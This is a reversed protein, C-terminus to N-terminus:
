CYPVSTHKHAIRRALRIAQFYPRTIERWIKSLGRPKKQQRLLQRDQAIDSASPTESLVFEQACIAPILQFITILTRATTTTEFMLDDVARDPKQALAILKRAGAHSVIYGAAGFHPSLLRRLKRTLATKTTRSLFVPTLMTEIKIVDFDNPLWDRSHMFSSFDPSIEVDDELICATPIGEKVMKEWTLRHSLICGFENKSMEYKLNKALQQTLSTEDLSIGDVAQIRIFCLDVLKQQMSILRDLRRDLNILYIPIQSSTTMTQQNTSQKHWHISDNITLLAKHARRLTRAWQTSLLHGVFPKVNNESVSFIKFFIRNPIKSRGIGGSAAASPPKASSNRRAMSSCTCASDSAGVSDSHVHCRNLSSSRAHTWSRSGRSNRCHLTILFLM